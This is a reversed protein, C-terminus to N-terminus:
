LCGREGESLGFGWCRWCAIMSCTLASTIAPGSACRGDPCNLALSAQSAQAAIAWLRVAGGNVEGGAGPRGGAAGGDAVPDDVDGGVERVSRPSDVQV